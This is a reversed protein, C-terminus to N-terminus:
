HIEIKVRDNGFTKKKKKNMISSWIILKIQNKNTKEAGCRKRMILECLSKRLQKAFLVFSFFPFKNTTIIRYEKEGERRM